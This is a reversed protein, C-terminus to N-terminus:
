ISFFMPCVSKVKLLQILTELIGQKLHEKKEVAGKEQLMLIPNTISQCQHLHAEIETYRERCEM